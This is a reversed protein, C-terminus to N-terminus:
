KIFGNLSEVVRVINRWKRDAEVDLKNEHLSSALETADEVVGDLMQAITSYVDSTSNFLHSSSDFFVDEDLRGSKVAKAVESSIANIVHQFFMNFMYTLNYNPVYLSYMYESSIIINCIPINNQSMMLYLGNTKRDHYIEIERPQQRAGELVITGIFPRSQTLFMPKSITLNNTGFVFFKIIDNFMTITFDSAPSMFQLKLSEEIRKALPLSAGFELKKDDVYKNYLFEGSSIKGNKIASLVLDVFINKVFKIFNDWNTKRYENPNVLNIISDDSVETEGIFTNEHFFYLVLAGHIADYSVNISRDKYSGGSFIICGRGVETPKLMSFIEEHTLPERGARLDNALNFLINRTFTSNDSIKQYFISKTIQNTIPTEIRTTKTNEM